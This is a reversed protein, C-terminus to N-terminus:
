SLDLLGNNELFKDDIINERALPYLRVAAVLDSPLDLSAVISAIEQGERALMRTEASDPLREVLRQANVVVDARAADDSTNEAKLLSMQQANLATGACVIVTIM